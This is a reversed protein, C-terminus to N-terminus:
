FGVSALWAHAAGFAETSSYHTNTNHGMNEPVYAQFSSAKPFLDRTEDVRSGPGVGCDVTPADFISGNGCAIQDQRGTIVMVPGAFGSPVTARDGAVEGAAFLHPIRDSDWAAMGADFSGDLGYIVDRIAKTASLYGPALQKFEAPKVVSASRAAINAIFQRLGTLNKATATLIYADAGGAQPTPFVTSVVRGLVSGYSHTAMIIKDFKPVDPLSGARLGVFLGRIVSLQMSPQVVKLPDPHDSKGNGLNDIALSAYGQSAAHAMWSYQNPFDPHPYDQGNWYEKTGTLGHVLFQVTSERGKVKNTPECYLASINFTGAVPVQKLTSANFSSIYKYFVGPETSEPYPPFDTNNAAAKIPLLLEKCNPTPLCPKTGPRTAPACLGSSGLTLTLAVATTSKM